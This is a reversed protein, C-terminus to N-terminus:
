FPHPLLPRPCLPAHASDPFGPRGRSGTNLQRREVCPRGQGRRSARRNWLHRERRRPHRLRFPPVRERAFITAVRRRVDCPAIPRLRSGARPPQKIYCMPSARSERAHERLALVWVYRRRGHSLRELRAFECRPSNYCWSGRGQDTGDCAVHASHTPLEGEDRRSGFRKRSLMSANCRARDYERFSWACRFM